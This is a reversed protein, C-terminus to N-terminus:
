SITGANIEKELEEVRKLLEKARNESILDKNNREKLVKIIDEDTDEAKFYLTEIEGKFSATILIRDKQSEIKEIQM